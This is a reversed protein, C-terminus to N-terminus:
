SSRAVFLVAVCELIGQASKAYLEDIQYLKKGSLVWLKVLYQTTTLPLAGGSEGPLVEYFSDGLAGMTARGRVPKGNIQSFYVPLIGSPPNVDKVAQLIKM